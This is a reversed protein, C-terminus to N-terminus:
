ETKPSATGALGDEVVVPLAKEAATSVIEYAGGTLENAIRRAKRRLKPHLDRAFEGLSLLYAEGKPNGFANFLVFPHTTKVQPLNLFAGYYLYSLGKRDITSDELSDRFLTSSLILPDAPPPLIKSAEEFTMGAPFKASGDPHFSATFSEEIARRVVGVKRRKTERGESSDVVRQRSSSQPVSQNNEEASGAATDRSFLKNALTELRDAERHYLTDPANYRKANQVVLMVDAQFAQASAYEGKSLKTEITGFDMPQDVFSLYDTVVNTDVPHLFLGYRDGLRLQQLHSEM